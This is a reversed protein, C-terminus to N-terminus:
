IQAQAVQHVRWLLGDNGLLITRLERAHVPSLPEAGHVAPNRYTGTIEQLVVGIAALDSAMPVHMAKAMAEFGPELFLDRFREIIANSYSYGRWFASDPTPAL